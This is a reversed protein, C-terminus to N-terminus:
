GICKGIIIADADHFDKVKLLNSSRVGPTYKSEPHRLMVGEGGKSIIQKKFRELHKFNKIPTQNLIEMSLLSPDIIVEMLELRKEFSWNL